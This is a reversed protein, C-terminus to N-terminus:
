EMEVKKWYNLLTNQILVLIELTTLLPMWRTYVRNDKDQQRHFEMYNDDLLIIFIGLSEFACDCHPFFSVDMGSGVSTIASHLM